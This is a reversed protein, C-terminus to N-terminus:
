FHFIGTGFAVAETAELRAALDTFAEPAATGNASDVLVVTTGAPTGDGRVATVIRIHVLKNGPGFADDTIM